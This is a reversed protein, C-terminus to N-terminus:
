FISHYLSEQELSYEPHRVFFVKTCFSKSFLLHSLPPYPSRRLSSDLSTPASTLSGIGVMTPVWRLAAGRRWCPSSWDSVRHGTDVANFSTLRESGQSEPVQGEPDRTPPSGPKGRLGCRDCPADRPRSRGGERGNQGKTHSSAPAQHSGTPGPCLPGPVHYTILM